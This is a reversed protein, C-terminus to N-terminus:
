MKQINEEFDKLAKEDRFKYSDAWTIWSAGKHFDKIAM